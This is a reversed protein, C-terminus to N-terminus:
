SIQLTRKIADYLAPLGHSKSVYSTAPRAACLQALREEEVVSYFIVPPLNAQQALADVLRPGDLGPMIVDLVALQPRHRLLLVGVGFPSGHGIVKLGRQTLYAVIRDLATPDDDVVLVTPQSSM